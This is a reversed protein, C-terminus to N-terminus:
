FVYVKCPCNDITRMLASGMQGEGVKRSTDNDNNNNDNNHTNNNDIYTTTTYTNWM